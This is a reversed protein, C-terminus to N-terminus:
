KNIHFYNLKYERKINLTNHIRTLSNRQTPFLINSDMATHYLIQYLNPCQSADFPQMDPYYSEVSTETQNMYFLWYFYKVNYNVM